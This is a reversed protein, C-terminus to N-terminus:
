LNRSIDEHEKTALEGEGYDFSSVGGVLCM